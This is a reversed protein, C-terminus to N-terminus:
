TGKSTRWNFLSSIATSRVKEFDKEGASILVILRETESYDVFSISISDRSGYRAFTFIFETSPRGSLLFPSPVTKVFVVNKAGAPIFQMAQAQMDDPPTSSDPGAQPTPAPTPTPASKKIVILKMWAG